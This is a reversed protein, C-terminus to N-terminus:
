DIPAFHLGPILQIHFEPEKGMAGLQSEMPIRLGAMLPRPAAACAPAPAQPFVTKTLSPAVSLAPSVSTGPGQAGKLIFYIVRMFTSNLGSIYFGFDGM